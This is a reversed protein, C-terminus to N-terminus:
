GSSYNEDMYNTSEVARRRKIEARMWASAEKAEKLLSEAEEPTLLHPDDSKDHGKQKM